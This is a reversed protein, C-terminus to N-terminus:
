ELNFLRTAYIDLGTLSETGPLTGDEIIELTDMGLRIYLAANDRNLTTGSTGMSFQTLDFEAQYIRFNSLNYYDTVAELQGTSENVVKLSTPTIVKYHKNSIVVDGGSAVPIYYQAKLGSSYSRINSNMTKFNVVLKSDLFGGDTGSDGSTSGELEPDYPVYTCTITAAKDAAHEKYVVKPSHAGSAYSAVLTNVFLKREAEMDSSIMSHGAGTYTINGKTYIYYNNRGDKYNARYFREDGGSQAKDNSLAYWVVVDDDYYQDTNDTDLNLQYYQSHTPAVEAEEPIHFPYETIQGRNISQITGNGAPSLQFANFSRRAGLAYEVDPEGTNYGGNNPRLRTVILSDTFGYTDGADKKDGYTSKDTVVKYEKIENTSDFVYNFDVKGVTYGYRDMGMIDRLYYTLYYGNNLRGDYSSVYQQNSHTLDHTFLMSRGSMAYERIGLAADKYIDVRRRPTGDISYTDVDDIAPSCFQYNDCFGLVVIDFQKLFDFYTGSFAGAGDLNPLNEKRIYKDANTQYIQVDFENIQDYLENMRTDDLDLNNTGGRDDTVNKPDQDRSVIQLVKIKPKDGILRVASYGIVSRRISDAAFKDGAKGNQVFEIKWPLFGVYGEPVIRSINYTHGSTLHFHGESMDEGDILLGDLVEVEEYNGDADMDIYLKCDYTTQESTDVASNNTLGIKFRLWVTGDSEIDLYENSNTYEKPSSQVDLELKSVNLFTSFIGRYTDAASNSTELNSKRMVNKGLYQKGEDTNFLWNMLEYMRSSKDVTELNLNGDADFFGDSLIVAYGAKIYDKLERVKNPTIDNGASVVTANRPDGFRVNDFGSFQDGVHTYVYGDLESRNHKTEGNTKTSGNIETNLMAKDMGIYILDYDANLDENICVFEKTGIQNITINDSGGTFELNNEVWAKTMIDRYEYRTVNNGSDTRNGTYLQYLPNDESSNSIDRNADVETYQSTDFPEIDLINLKNKVVVRNTNKNLIYRISTAKSIEMNFDDANDTAQLEIYSKEARNEADVDAFGYSVKASSYAPTYFDTDVISGNGAIINDNVFLTGKAYSIDTTTPDDDGFWLDDTSVSSLADGDPIATVTGKMLALAMGKLNSGDAAESCTAYEMMVSLKNDAVNAVIAKGVDEDLVSDAGSGTSYNFYILGAKSLMDLTLEEAKVTVVDISLNEYEEATTRDFVYTKFWEENAFGGDYTFSEYTKRSYDAFFKYEFTGSESTGDEKLRFVYGNSDGDMIYYPGFDDPVDSTTYSGPRGNIQSVEVNGGGSVAGIRYPNDTTNSTETFTYLPYEDWDYDAGIIGGFISGTFSAIEGLDNYEITIKDGNGDEIIRKKPDATDDYENTKITGIYVKPSGTNSFIRSDEPLSEFGDITRNITYYRHNWANGDNLGGSIVTDRIPMTDGANIKVFEEIDGLAYVSMRRGLILSNENIGGSANLEDESIFGDGDDYSSGAFPVNGDTVGGEKYDVGGTEFTGRIDMTRSGGSPESYDSWTYADDYLPLSTADFPALVSSLREARSPMDKFAKVRDSEISVPEEGGILYGLRADSYNNVVEYIVFPNRGEDSGESHANALEQIGRLTVRAAHAKNSDIYLATGIVSAAIVVAMTSAFIRKKISLKSRSM